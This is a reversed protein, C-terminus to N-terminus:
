FRKTPQKQAIYASGYARCSCWLFCCCCWLLLEDMVDFELPCLFTELTFLSVFLFNNIKAQFCLYFIFVLSYATLSLSPSLSLHLSSLCSFSIYIYEQRREQAFHIQHTLGLSDLHHPRGILFLFLIDCCCHPPLPPPPPPAPGCFCRSPSSVTVKHHAVCM